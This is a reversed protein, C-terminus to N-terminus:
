VMGFVETASVDWNQALIVTGNAKWVLSTCGDNILGM